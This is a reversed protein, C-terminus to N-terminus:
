RYCELLDKTELDRAKDDKALKTKINIDKYNGYKFLVNYNGEKDYFTKSTNGLRGISHRFHAALAPSDYLLRNTIAYELAPDSYTRYFSNDMAYLDSRYFKSEQESHVGDYRRRFEAGYNRVIDELIADKNNNSLYRFVANGLRKNQKLGPMAVNTNKAYAIEGFQLQPKLMYRILNNFASESESVNLKEGDSHKKIFDSVLRDEVDRSIQWNEKAFPSSKSENYTTQVLGGLMKNLKQFESIFSEERAPDIGLHRVEVNGTIMLMSIADIYEKKNLDVYRVPNDIIYYEGSEFTYKSSPSIFGAEKFLTRGDSSTIKKYVYSPKSKNNNYIIGRTGKTITQNRVNYFGKDGKSTELLNGTLAEAEKDHLYDLLQHTTKLKDKARLVSQSQSENARRIFRQLSSRQKVLSSHLLSYQRLERENISNSQFKNLYKRLANDYLIGDSDDLEKVFDDYTADPSLSRFANLRDMIQELSKRATSGDSTSKDSYSEISLKDQSMQDLLFGSITSDKIRKINNKEIIIPENTPQMRPNKELVKKYDDFDKLTNGFFESNLRSLLSKGDRGMSRYKFQLRDYIFKSPNNYFSNIESRAMGIENADPPRRGAADFVDTLIRQSKSKVRLMERIIEKKIEVNDKGVQFFGKFDKQGFNGIENDLNYDDPKDGFLIYDQIQGQKAKSAWNPKKAADIISQLTNKYGQLFDRYGDKKSIMTVGLNELNILDPQRLFFSLENSLKKAVGFNRKSQQYQEMHIFLNDTYGTGKGAKVVEGDAANGFGFMDMSSLDTPFIYADVSSGLDKWISNTFKTPKRNYNFMADVDFDAQHTQAIDYINVGVVNGQEKDYFGEVKHIAVDGGLNPMRLSLSELFYKTDSRKNIDNFQDFLTQMTRKDDLSEEVRQIEAIEKKLDDATLEKYPDNVIFKKGIRSVQVDRKKNNKNVELIYQIKDVDHMTTFRDSYSLKKGGVAVQVRNNADGVNQYMPVSGELYPILISYSAGATKPSRIGNILSQTAVNRLGSRIFESNPDLGLSLLKQNIGNTSDEFLSNDERLIRYFYEAAAQRNGNQKSVEGIINFYANLKEQYNVFDDRFSQYGDSDLFDTIAYTINAIKKRDEVKGLFINELTIKAKNDDGAKDLVSRSINVDNVVDMGKVDDSSLSVKDKYFAKTASETTLIDVGKAEMLDAIKPDYVFNTKMLISNMGENYHVTPKVGATSHKNESDTADRGKHLYLISAAKHSLYSQANMSSSVISKFIKDEGVADVNEKILDKDYGSKKIIDKYLNSATLPNSLKATEDAITVINFGEDNLYEDIYKNQDESLFDEGKLLELLQKNAQVKAGTAEGLTVYKFFSAAMENARSPTNAETVINNFESSNIKDFYMARIMQRADSKSVASETDKVFDGYIKNYNRYTKSKSDLSELKSDYWSKFKKSLQGDIIQSRPIAIVTNQSVVIPIFDSMPQIDQEQRSSEEGKIMDRTDEIGRSFMQSEELVRVMDPVELLNTKRGGWTATADIILLDINNDPNNTDRLERAFESLVGKGVPRKSIEFVGGADSQSLTVSKIYDRGLVNNYLQPLVEKNFQNLEQNYSEPNFQQLGENDEYTHKTVLAREVESRIDKFATKFGSLGSESLSLSANEIMERFSDQKLMPNFREYKVSITTPSIADSPQINLTSFDAMTQAEAAQIEFYKEENYGRRFVELYQNLRRLIYDADGRRNAEKIVDNFTPVEPLELNEGHKNRLYTAFKSTIRDTRRKFQMSDDANTSADLLFTDLVMSQRKNINANSIITREIEKAISDVQRSVQDNEYEQNINDKLSNIKVLFESSLLGTENDLIKKLQNNLETLEKQDTIQRRDGIIGGEEDSIYLKNILDTVDDLKQTQQDLGDIVQKYESFVERNFDTTLRYMEDIASVTNQTQDLTIQPKIQVFDGTVVSLAQLSKEYRDAYVVAEERTLGSRRSDNLFAEVQQYSPISLIKKGNVDEIKAFDNVQINEIISIHNPTIHPSNLIKAYHWRKQERVFDQNISYGQKEFVNVLQKAKDYDIANQEGPKLVGKSKGSGQGWIQAILNIQYEIRDYEDSIKIDNIQKEDKNEFKFELRDTNNILPVKNGFTNQLIGYLNKDAESLNKTNGEAINFLADRKKAYKHRQLAYIFANSNPLINEPYNQGFNEYRLTDLMAKINGTILDKTDSDNKLLELKLKASEPVNMTEILGADELEARLKLFQSIEHYDSDTNIIKDGMSVDAIKFPKDFNFEYDADHQIGLEKAISRITEIHLQGVNTLADDMLGNKWTEFNEITLKEGKLPGQTIEINEVKSAIESIQKETLNDIDIFNEGVRSDTLNKQLAAIKYLDFAYLALRSNPVSGAKRPVGKGDKTQVQERHGDTEFIQEIQRVVPDKIIGSYAAAFHIDDNFAKGYHELAKADLGLYNLAKIRDTFDTNIQKYNEEFLPRKMRSFFAGTIFHAALEEGEMALLLDTDLLTHMDFYLGGALMRGLSATVDEKAEKYFSKWVVEPKVEKMIEKIAGVAKEKEITKFRYKGALQGIVSDQLYNDRTLVRLLGNAQAETLDDYNRTKTKRLAKRLQNATRMVPVKGGGGIMDIAPLAVSFLMADGVDKAPDFEKQGAISYVGDQMLNYISFLVAQDAARAFYRTIKNSDSAKFTANLSKGIIDTLNNIHVGNLKLASTAEDSIRLLTEDAAQPFDKKLADFVSGRVEGEVKKIEDLSIEYKSIAGQPGKLSKSKLGSRVSDEVLERELGFKSKSAFKAAAESAEGIIRTTGLKNIASVGARIGLGVYKMPALFGIGQGVVKGFTAMGETKNNMIDYDSKRGTTQEFVISPIGLAASDAANWLLAGIGNLVGSVKEGDDDPSVGTSLMDYLSKEQRLASLPSPQSRPATPSTPTAPTTRNSYLEKRFDELLKKTYESM